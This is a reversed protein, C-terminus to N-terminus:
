SAEQLAPAPAPARRMSERWADSAARRETAADTAASEAARYAAIHPALGAAIHPADARLREEMHAVCTAVTEGVTDIIVPPTPRPTLASIRQLLEAAEATTMTLTM